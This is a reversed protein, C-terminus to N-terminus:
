RRGSGSSSSCTMVASELAHLAEYSRPDLPYDWCGTRHVIRGGFGTKYRYLGALSHTPDPRPPIGCLDYRTCGRSRALHIAAWQVAYPAMLNRRLSSSAGHLYTATGRCLSLMAGALLDGDQEAMLLVMTAASPGPRARVLATFHERGMPTFGNRAATQLYLEHFRPWEELPAQRVMVGKRAALGINYRTKPHMAALLDEEPRDLDLVVTDPPHLDVAARRLNWNRTGFNMRMESLRTDPEGQWHGDEGYLARESAYPSEWPLDFRLLAVSPALHGRLEEALAELFPGYGDTPPGEEPGQPVYAVAQGNGVPRTLVLVDGAAATSTFDVALPKWGLRTKVASWWSTQYPIDTPLLSSAPKRTIRMDM